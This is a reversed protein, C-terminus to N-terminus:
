KGTTGFGGRNPGTLSDVQVFEIKSVFLWKIKQWVTAKQSLQIRFQCIKDGKKITGKKMGIYSFKWIDDNGSYSNDMVGKSNKKMIGYSDYTSSRPLIYAELGKPLKMAIGLSITGTDFVIPRYSYTKNDIQVRKLKIAKPEEIEKNEASYLDLWDGKPIFQIPKVAKDTIRYKIKLKM